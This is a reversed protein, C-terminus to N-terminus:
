AEKKRMITAGAEDIQLVTGVISAHINASLGDTAAKGILDGIQVASGETVNPTAAKGIHQRFPIYVSDPELTLLDQAHEGYYKSLGLRAVLRGTPIQRMSLESRISPENNKPVQVGRERIVGKAYDNVRRPSLGM